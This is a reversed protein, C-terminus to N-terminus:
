AIPGAPVGIGGAQRYRGYTVSSSDIRDFLGAVEHDEAIEAAAESHFFDRSILGACDATAAGILDMTMAQTAAPVSPRFSYTVFEHVPDM